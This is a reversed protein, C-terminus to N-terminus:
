RDDKVRISFVGNADTTAPESRVVLGHYGHNYSLTAAQRLHLLKEQGGEFRKIFLRAIRKEIEEDDGHVM